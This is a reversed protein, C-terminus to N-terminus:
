PLAGAKVAAQGVAHVARQAERLDVLHRVGEGDVQALDRAQVLAVAHRQLHGVGPSERDGGEADELGAAHQHVDVRQVGGLLHGLLEGVGLRVRQDDDVHEGVLDGRRGAAMGIGLMMTVRTASNRGARGRPM